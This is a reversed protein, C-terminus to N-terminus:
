ARNRMPETLWDGFLGARHAERISPVVKLWAKYPMDRRIFNCRICAPVVNGKIHGKRNDKRDLTMKLVVSGCYTCGKAIQRDIYAKTLNNKLGNRKDDRRTDELIFRARKRPDQRVARAKERSRSRLDSDMM